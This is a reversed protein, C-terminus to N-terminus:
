TQRHSIALAVERDRLIHKVKNSLNESLLNKYSSNTKLYISYYLCVLHVLLTVKSYKTQTAGPEIVWYLLHTGRRNRNIFFIGFAGRIVARGTKSM